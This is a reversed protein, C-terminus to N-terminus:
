ARKRDQRPAGLFNIARAYRIDPELDEPTRPRDFAGMELAYRWMDELIALHQRYDVPRRLRQLEFNDLEQTRKIM